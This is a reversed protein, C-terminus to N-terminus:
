PTADSLLHKPFTKITSVLWSMICWRGCHVRMERMLMMMVSRKRSVKMENRVMKKTMIVDNIKSMSTKLIKTSKTFKGLSYLHM